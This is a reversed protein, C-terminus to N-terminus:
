LPRQAVRPLLRRLQVTALRSGLRIALRELTGERRGLCLGRLRDRLAVSRQALPVGRQSLPAAWGMAQAELSSRM